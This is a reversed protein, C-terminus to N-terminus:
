FSFDERADLVSFEGIVTRRLEKVVAPYGLRRGIEEAISRIYAGSEVSITVHLVTGDVNDLQISNVVMMKVPAEFIEGKRAKKYLAQGGVKIASYKPVALKIEGILAELVEEVNELVGVQRKEIIEGEMDGTTRSEGILIEVEYTKPLKLYEYLKKTDKETAIIMLGSALPDLTGAHGMKKIGLERRLRRIVDFSTIGKPKDALIIM